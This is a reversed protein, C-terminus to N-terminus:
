YTFIKYTFSKKKAYELRKNKNHKFVDPSDDVPANILSRSIVTRQDTKLDVHWLQPSETDEVPNILECIIDM